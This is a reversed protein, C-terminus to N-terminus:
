CGCAAAFFWPTLMYPAPIGMAEVFFPFVLGMLLGLGIMWIALDTFVKRTIRIM